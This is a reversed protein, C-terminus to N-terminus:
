LLEIRVVSKVNACGSRGQPAFVRFPGGRDRPFPGDDLSHILVADGVDTVPTPQTTMGDSAIVVFCATPGPTTLALVEALEVGQGERGPVREAIDQVQGPMARLAMRNLKVMWGDSARLHLTAVPNEPPIWRAQELREILEEAGTRAIVDVASGSRLPGPVFHLDGGALDMRYWGLDTQFFGKLREVDADALLSKLQRMDFVQEDDWSRSVARYASTSSEPNPGPLPRLVLGGRVREFFETPVSGGDRSEYFGLFPPWHRAVFGQLVDLGQDSRLSAVVLDAADLQELLLLPAEGVLRRPDVVVVVPMVKLALGSRRLTDVIDAPRALGTAEIFIRDPGVEKLIASIGPVLGEPATCCICGGSIETVAVEAGLLQADIRAEGFDNVVVACREDRKQLQDLLLTTKGAGLFGSVVHVPVM